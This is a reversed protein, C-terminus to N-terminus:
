TTQDERYTRVYDIYNQASKELGKKEETTLTRKIKAPVGAVLSGEPVIFGEPVVTGAAVLSYPEITANDLIIAGMGILVYDKVTAAHVIAGHGVTVNSGIVCPYKQHTVHIVANDQINTRQGIRIYHVDGRIVTNFWVSCDKELVVDGIIQCGEALFVTPHITPVIGKYSRIM